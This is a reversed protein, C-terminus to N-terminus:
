SAERNEVKPIQQTIHNALYKIEQGLEPPMQSAVIRAVLLLIKIILHERWTM